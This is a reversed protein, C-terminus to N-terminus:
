SEIRTQDSVPLSNDDINLQVYGPGGGPGSATQGYYDIELYDNENVVDYGPFDCTGSITVWNGAEAQEFYADAAGTAITDRVTGDAARVLIDINFRVDGDGAPFAGTGVVYCHYYVTWTEEPIEEIGILPFIHRAARTPQGTDYLIKRGTENQSFDARAYMVPGDDPAEAMDYYYTGAINSSESQPTLRTFGPVSFPLSDYIGNPTTITIDGATNAGPPPALKALIVMEENPNLIGPEFFETPGCLGIRAKYWQNNAPLSGSYPLWRSYTSNGSDEYSLIVDWKDYSALKTQGSNKVTARVYDAWTLQEAHTIELGTRMIEGERVSISEVSTAATDATTLIGQSLTMGGVVIMAVCIITVIAVVM